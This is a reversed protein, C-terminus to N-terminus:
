SNIENYVSVTSLSFNPLNSKYFDQRYLVILRELMSYKSSRVRSESMFFAILVLGRVYLHEESLLKCSIVGLQKKRGLTLQSSM